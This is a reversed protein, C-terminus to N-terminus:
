HKEEKKKKKKKRIKEKKKKKAWGVRWESLIQEANRLVVGDVVRKERRLELLGRVHLLGEDLDPRQELQRLCALLETVSSKANGRQDTLGRQKDQEDEERGSVFGEKNTKWHIPTCRASIFSVQKNNRV